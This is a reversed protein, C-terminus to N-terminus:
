NAYNHVTDNGGLASLLTNAKTNSYSNADNSFIPSTVKYVKNNNLKVRVYSNVANDVTVKTNGFSLVM